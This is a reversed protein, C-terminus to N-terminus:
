NLPPSRFSWWGKTPLITFPFEGKRHMAGRYKLIELTRRRKQLELTNRLIVVNDAVFEEVGHRVIEGCEEMREATLVSTVGTKKLAFAIRLLERRVTADDAFQTFVAGLSDMSLRKAGTRQVAHQIRALLAGLDFDGVIVSEESPDPAADVFAWKGDKEWQEIDWGFSAFNSRLDDVSEEFTVFVGSEGACRIGEALFHAAFVTKASGATGSVLTTRGRALGGMSVHDFGPIHTPLKEIATFSSM